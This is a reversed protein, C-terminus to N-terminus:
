KGTVERFGGAEKIYVKGNLRVRGGTVIKGLQTKQSERTGTIDTVANAGTPAPNTRPTATKPSPNPATPNAVGNFLEQAIANEAKARSGGYKKFDSADRSFLGATDEVKRQAQEKAQTMTMGGKGIPEGAIYEALDPRPNDGILLSKIAADKNFFGSQSNTRIAVNIRLADAASM